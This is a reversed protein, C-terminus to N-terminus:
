FKRDTLAIVSGLVVVAVLFVNNIAALSAFDPLKFDTYQGVLKDIQILIALSLYLILFLSFEKEVAKLFGAKNKQAWFFINVEGFLFLFFFAILSIEEKFNVSIKTYMNKLIAQWDEKLNDRRYVYRSYLYPHGRKDASLFLYLNKEGPAIKQRGELEVVYTKGESDEIVPFGFPFLAAPAAQEFYYPNEYFWEDAGKEKIRFVIEAPKAIVEEAAEEEPLIEKGENEEVAKEIEEEGELPVMEVVEGEENLGLTEEKVALLIGVTGLNNSDARFEQSIVKGEVLPVERDTKFGQPHNEYVLPSGYQFIAYGITFTLILLINAGTLLFFKKKAAPHPLLFNFFAAIQRGNLFITFIVLWLAIRNLERRNLNLSLSFLSALWVFLTLLLFSFIFANFFHRFKPFFYSFREPFKM